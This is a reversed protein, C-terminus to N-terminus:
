QDKKSEELRQRIATHIRSDLASKSFELLTKSGAAVELDAGAEILYEVMKFEDSHVARFIPTWGDEDRAELNAGAKILVRAVPISGIGAADHLLSAGSSDRGGVSAGGEILLRAVEANEKMVASRLPSAGEGDKVNPDAGKSLLYKVVEVHGRATAKHLPTSGGSWKKKFSNINDGAEIRKKVHELRGEMAATHLDIYRNLILPVGTLFLGVALGWILLRLLGGEWFGPRTRSPAWNGRKRCGDLVEALIIVGLGIIADTVTFLLAPDVEGLHDDFTYVLVLGLWLASVPLLFSRVSRILGLFIPGFLIPYCVYQYAAPLPPAPVVGGFFAGVYGPVNGTWPDPFRFVACLTGTIVPLALSGFLLCRSLYSKNAPKPDETM